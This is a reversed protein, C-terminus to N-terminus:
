RLIQYVRAEFSGDSATHVLMLSPSREVKGIMERYDATGYIEEHIVAYAVGRSRLAAMSAEDPFTRMAAHLPRYSAPLSGSFGNVMPQWHSTSYFLYRAATPYWFPVDVITATPRGNFWSSVPHVRPLPMADLMPRPEALIVGCLVAVLAVKSRRRYLRGALRATGFGALVALALGVLM